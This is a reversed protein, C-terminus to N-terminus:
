STQFQIHNKLEVYGLYILGSEHTSYATTPFVIEVSIYIILKNNLPGLKMNELM